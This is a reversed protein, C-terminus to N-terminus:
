VALIGNTLGLEIKGRTEAIGDFDVIAHHSATNIDRYVQQLVSDNYISHAGAIAFFRETARRSLEVIYAANWRVAARQELNM